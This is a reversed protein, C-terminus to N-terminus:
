LYIHVIIDNFIKVNLLRGGPSFINQFYAGFKISSANQHPHEGTVKNRIKLVCKALFM